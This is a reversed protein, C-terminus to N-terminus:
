RSDRGPWARGGTIAVLEAPLEQMLSAWQEGMGAIPSSSGDSVSLMGSSAVPPLPGKEVGEGHCWSCLSAATVLAV